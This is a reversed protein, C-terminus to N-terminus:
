KVIVKMKINSSLGKITWEGGSSGTRGAYYLKNSNDKALIYSSISTEIKPAYYYNFLNISGLNYFDGNLTSTYWNGTNLSYGEPTTLEDSLLNAAGFRNMAEAFSIDGYGCSKIAEEICEKGTGSNQVMNKILEAGGYNRILYAGFAYSISYSKLVDANKLWETLSIDNYQNYLPLRGYKNGSSGATKDSYLVGRPGDAKIKDAVIDEICQSLMENLWTESGSSNDQVFIKQYFNIMHQFEHALISILEEPWYDTIEWSYGDKAAFMVSDIVFMLKENSVANVSKKFNNVGWFYGAVGGSDSNDNKIDQLLIHIDNTDPICYSYNNPGWPAGCINTVWEYIDNDDGPKLFAASLKDVMEQTVEHKKVGAGIWSSNQVWVYLTKGNASVKSKLTSPITVTGNGYDDTFNETVGVEYYARQFTKYKKYDNKAMGKYKKGEKFPNRNFESIWEEGKQIFNSKTILQMNNARNLINKSNKIVNLSAIDPYYESNNSGNTFVFYVDKNAAGSGLIYKFDGTASVSDVMNGSGYVTMILNNSDAIMLYFKGTASSSYTKAKIWVTRATTSTPIMVYNENNITTLKTTKDSEYVEAMGDLNATGYSLNQSDSIKLGYSTNAPIDIYFYCEEGSGTINVETWRNLNLETGNINIIVYEGISTDSEIFSNKFAKAKIVISNSINIPIKYLLSDKNPESGDTTYRIETGITACSMSLAFSSPYNGSEKSLVVKEAKQKVTYVAEAVLSNNWGSKYAIAKLTTVTGAALTIEAASTIEIGNNETPITGDLTYRVKTGTVVPIKFSFPAPYNGTAPLIPKAVTGTVVYDQQVVESSEWGSKVAYAKIRHSNTLTISGKYLIANGTKPDSGDVTYWIEAGETKCTISVDVETTYSGGEPSIVPLAVSEGGSKGICGAMFLIVFIVTLSQVIRKM